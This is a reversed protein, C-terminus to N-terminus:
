LNTKIGAVVTNILGVLRNKATDNAMIKCELESIKPQYRGDIQSLQIEKAGLQNRLSEIQDRLLQIDSKLKLGESDKASMLEAKTAVGKSVYTAHVKTLEDIYFQSQIALSDKTMGKEMKSLMKLAMKYAAPDNIGAEVVAEFYEYFEVGQKNLKAFGEEYLKMIADMHPGCELPINAAYTPPPAEATQTSSPFNTGADPFKSAYREERKEQPADDEFILSRLSKKIM